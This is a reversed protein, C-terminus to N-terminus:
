VQRLRPDLFSVFLDILLNVLIFLIAFTLVLGQILPLDRNIVPDIAMNGICPDGFVREFLVTGGFLFTFQVGSRATAPVLVNSLAQSYVTM